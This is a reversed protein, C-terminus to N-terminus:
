REGGNAVRSFRSAAAPSTATEMASSAKRARRRYWERLAKLKEKQTTSLPVIEAAARAVDATTLPRRGDAFAAYMAEVVAQEIEAGSFGEMGAALTGLDFSEPKWGRKALHIRLIVRREDETPLDTAFVADFRGARLLEPRLSTVDNATAFVFVPKERRQMWTLLHAVVRVTTEHEGASGGGLVKEIEDIWLVCPAVAEAVETARAINGESEGVYKGHIKSGDLLLLPLQWEAAVAEALLSKGCGPPGVVLAGKPIPLGYERAEPGFCERRQRLWERLLDMGGVSDLGERPEIFRLVGSEEVLRRKERHIAEVDIRRGSTEALAVGIANEAEAFSLGACAEAIARVQADSLDLGAGTLGARAFAELEDVTPLPSQYLVVDGKLDAPVKASPGLLIVMADRAKIATAVDRVQRVHMAEGMYPHFDLLVLVAGTLTDRAWDLVAPIGAYGPPVDAVPEGVSDLLGRTVSWRYVKRDALAAAKEIADLLRAEDTSPVQLVPVRAQMYLVLRGVDSM